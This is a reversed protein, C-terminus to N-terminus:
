SKYDLISKYAEGVFNNYNNDIDQFDQNKPIKNWYFSLLIKLNQLLGRKTEVLFTSNEVNPENSLWIMIM